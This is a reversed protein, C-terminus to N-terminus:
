VVGGIEEAPSVVRGVIRGIESGVERCVRSTDQRGGGRLRLRLRM